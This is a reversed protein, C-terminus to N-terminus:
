RYSGWAEGSPGRPCSPVNEIQVNQYTSASARAPRRVSASSVNWFICVYALGSPVRVGVREAQVGLLDPEGALLEAVERLREAVQREDVRRDVEVVLEVAPWAIDFPYRSSSTCSGSAVV